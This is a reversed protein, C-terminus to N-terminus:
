IISDSSITPVFPIPTALIRLVGVPLLGLNMSSHQYDISSALAVDVEGRELCGVLESPVKAVVDIGEVAQIGEIMPSANLFNVVGLRINQASVASMRM